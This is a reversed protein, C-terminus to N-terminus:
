EDPSEKKKGKGFSIQFGLYKRMALYIVLLSIAVAVRSSWPQNLKWISAAKYYVGLVPNAPLVTFYLKAAAAVGITTQGSESKAVPHGELYAFYEGPETKIPLNLKIEVKQAEGPKLHFKKPSFEFWGEAPRLEKQDQHYSVAPEYDGEEDGTNVITLPPLQYIIGPRLKEEVTIKGTTVGVGIKSWVKPPFLLIVLVPLILGGLIKKVM